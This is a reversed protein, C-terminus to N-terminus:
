LVTVTLWLVLGTFIAVIAAVSGYAIVGAILRERREDAAIRDLITERM